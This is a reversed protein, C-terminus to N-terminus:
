PRSRKARNPNKGARSGKSLRGSRQLRRRGRKPFPKGEICHDQIFSLRWALMEAHELTPKVNVPILGTVSQGSRIAEVWRQMEYVYCGLAATWDPAADCVLYAPPCDGTVVWLTDDVGVLRPEICFLFVGLPYGIDFALYSERIEACWHFASLFLTARRALAIQEDDVLDRIRVMKSTDPKM